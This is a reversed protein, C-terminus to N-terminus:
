DNKYLKKQLLYPRSYKEPFELYSCNLNNKSDNLYKELYGKQLNISFKASVAQHAKCPDKYRYEIQLFDIVIFFSM